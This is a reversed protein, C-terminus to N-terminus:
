VLITLIECIILSSYVNETRDFVEEALGENAFIDFPMVGEGLISSIEYLLFGSFGTTEVQLATSM